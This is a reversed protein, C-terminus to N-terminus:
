RGSEFPAVVFTSFMLVAFVFSAVAVYTWDKEDVFMLVSAAVRFFPVLLLILVGAEIISLSNLTMLGSFVSQLDLVPRGYNTRCIEEITTPCSTNTGLGSPALIVGVAIVISSAIVGYRLVRGIAVEIGVDVKRSRM